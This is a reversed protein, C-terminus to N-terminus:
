IQYEPQLPSFFIIITFWYYGTNNKYYIFLRTAAAM